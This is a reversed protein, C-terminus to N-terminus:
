GATAEEVGLCSGNTNAPVTGEGGHMRKLPPPRSMASRRCPRGDRKPLLRRCIRNVRGEWRSLQTLPSRRYCQDNDHVSYTTLYAKNVDEQGRKECAGACHRSRAATVRTALV